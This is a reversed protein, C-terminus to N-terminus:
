VNSSSIANHGLFLLQAQGAPRALEGEPDVLLIGLGSHALSDPMVAFREHYLSVGLALGDAEVHPRKQVPSSFEGDLREVFVEAPQDFVAGAARLGLQRVFSWVLMKKNRERRLRCWQSLRNKQRFLPGSLKSILM